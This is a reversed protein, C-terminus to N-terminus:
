QLGPQIGVSRCLGPWTFGGAPTVKALAANMGSVSRVHNKYAFYAIQFGRGYGGLGGQCPMEDQCCHVGVACQLCDCAQNLDANFRKQHRRGYYAYHRLAKHAFKTFVTFFIGAKM